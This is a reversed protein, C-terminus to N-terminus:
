LFILIIKGKIFIIAVREIKSEVLSIVQNIVKGQGSFGKGLWHGKGNIV